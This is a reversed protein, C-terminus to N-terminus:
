SELNSIPDIRKGGSSNTSKMKGKTLTRFFHRRRVWVPTGSYPRDYRNDPSQSPMTISDHRQFRLIASELNSIPDIRKGGSSNTSKMKGKTLTRFFHRRRVWDPTGSYPRDYRNDPSQSPMTISDHRQFRLIASELDSIPAIRTCGTPNTSTVKGTIFTRFFHRRWGLLPYWFLGSRVEKDPFKSPRTISDHRPFRLNALEIDDRNTQLSRHCPSLAMDKSDFSRQFSM